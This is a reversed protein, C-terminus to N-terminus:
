ASLSLMGLCIPKLHYLTGTRIDKVSLASTLFKLFSQPDLVLKSDIQGAFNWFLGPCPTKNGATKIAVKRKQAEIEGASTCMM